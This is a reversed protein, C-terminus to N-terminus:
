RSRKRKRGARGAHASTAVSPSRTAAEATTPDVAIAPRTGLVVTPYDTEGAADKVWFGADANNTSVTELLQRLSLRDKFSERQRLRIGIELVEEDIAILPLPTPRQTLGLVRLTASALSKQWSDPDEPQAM